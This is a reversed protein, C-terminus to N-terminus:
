RDEIPIVGIRERFALEGGLWGTLGLMTAALASLAMARAPVRRGDRARIALSLASLGLMTVNGTAHAIGTRGRAARITSFDVIGPLAATLGSLIGGALLFRSARAFFREGTILHGLDSLTTAVILGIPLPVIAPHIPHGGIAATSPHVARGDGSADDSGDEREGEAQSPRPPRVAPDTTGGEAPSPHPPTDGEALAPDRLIEDTM